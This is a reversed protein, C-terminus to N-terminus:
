RLVERVRREVALDTETVWDAASTKTSIQDGSPRGAVIRGMAWRALEEALAARADVEAGSLM